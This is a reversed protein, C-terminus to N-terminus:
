FPAQTHPTFSQLQPPVQKDPNSWVAIHNDSADFMVNFSAATVLTGALDMPPNPSMMCVYKSLNGSWSSGTKSVKTDATAKPLMTPLMTQFVRLLLCDAETALSGKSPPAAYSRLSECMGTM